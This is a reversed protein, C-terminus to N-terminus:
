LCTRAARLALEASISQLDAKMTRLEAETFNSKDLTGFHDRLADELIQPTYCSRLPLNSVESPRAVRRHSGEFSEAYMRGEIAVKYTPLPFRSLDPAINGVIQWDGNWIKGDMSNAIFLPESRVIQELSPHQDNDAVASYIVMLHMVAEHTALIQGFGWRSQSVPIRFVDGAVPKIKKKAVVVGGENVFPEFL